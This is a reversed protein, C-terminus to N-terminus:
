WTELLISTVVIGITSGSPTGAEVNEVSVGPARKTLM